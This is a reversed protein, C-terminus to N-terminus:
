ASCRDSAGAKKNRLFLNGMYQGEVPQAIEIAGKELLKRVEEYINQKEVLNYKPNILPHTQIPEELFELQVGSVFNLIVPDKTIKIWNQISVKM